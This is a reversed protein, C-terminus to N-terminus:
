EDRIAEMPHIAAARRAPLYAALLGCLFLLTAAAALTWADHSKVGYVFGRALRGSALSLGIGLAVGALLMAGAQRVVLWAVNGRQAGLAIRIGIERSRQTVVYALLGYLGAICLLLASGGFIELLHAALRQSGYSDEVIQNMTTIKSDALEPSAQRLIDRIEPIVEAAPRSTRLALDIAIEDLVNYFTSKPNTQSLCVEIEPQSASAIGSQHDDALVGVIQAYDAKKAGRNTGMLKTGLISAPDHKKPAYERAFAQNVVIVPQSTPTDSSDFYRGAAMRFGFVDRIERTSAKLSATVGRGKMRMYLGVNFTQGLPVETMLGASRVGHLHQARDLIPEFLDATLNRHTYRYSPVDLHAVLIHDTRFGLPVHRLAYITRLLLGCGMLLTLSLAIELAVLASRMRHHHRGTGTQQGGQRLAPEIPARASMIAPWASSLLASVATLAFLALLIWTDPLAPVPLPLRSTLEHGLLRVSAVALGAGLVGASLSLVFGEILMQQVIRSRSAGLAGRMAFERQRATSRALLLNAANLGAILWLVGSAALLALIAKRVDADVLTSGYQKVTIRSHDKRADAPWEQAVRKQIASMEAQAAQLTVGPRLRGLVSYSNANNGRIQDAKGLEVPTWVQAAPYEAPYRFGPPMVGIVTWSKNNIKITKGLINPNAHLAGKWSAYSLIITGSNRDPGFTPKEPLFGRGLMPQVGLMPFFNASIAEDAVETSTGHDVLFNHGNMGSSFAIQQLSHSQQKWQQIDLWPQPWINQGSTNVETIQVLRDANRYPLPQLLVHDVVTFMAAAAAIGLALTGIVAAAFGPSKRMQRLAYVFDCRLNELFPFGQRLRLTERTQTLGGFDRLAALRADEPSMGRQLNEDIAMELHSRLEDDLERDLSRRRFLSLFRSLLSRLWALAIRLSNM